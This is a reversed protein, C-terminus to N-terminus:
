SSSNTFKITIKITTLIIAKIKNVVAVNHIKQLKLNNFIQNNHNFHKNNSNYKIKLNIAKITM